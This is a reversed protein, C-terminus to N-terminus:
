CRKIKDCEAFYILSQSILMLGQSFRDDTVSNSISIQNWSLKIDYLSQVTLSFSTLLTGHGMQGSRQCQNYAPGWEWRPRLVMM